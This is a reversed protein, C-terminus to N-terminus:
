GRPTYGLTGPTASILRNASEVPDILERSTVRHALQRLKQGLRITIVVPPSSLLILFLRERWGLAKREAVINEVPTLHLSVSERVASSRLAELTSYDAYRYTNTDILLYHNAPEDVGIDTEAAGQYTAVLLISGAIQLAHVQPVSRRNPDSTREIYALQPMKDFIVLQYGNPLTVHYNGDLFNDDGAAREAFGYGLIGAELYFLVLLPFTCAVLLAVGRGRPTGRTYGYVIFTLVMGCVAAALLLVVQLFMLGLIEM